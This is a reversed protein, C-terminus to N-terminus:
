KLRITKIIARLTELDGPPFTKGADVRFFLIGLHAGNVPAIIVIEPTYQDRELTFSYEKTYSELIYCKYPGIEEVWREVVVWDDRSRFDAIMLALEKLREEDSQAVFGPIDFFKISFGAYGPVDLFLATPKEAEIEWDGPYAVSFSGDLVQYYNWGEPLVPTPLPTPTPLLTPTPAPTDTPAPTNTPIPTATAQAELTARIKAEIAAETAAMDPTPAPIAGPGCAALSIILVLAAIILFMARKM